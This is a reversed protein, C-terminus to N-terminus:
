EIRANRKLKHFEKRVLRVLLLMAIVDSIILMTFVNQWSSSSIMGALLPGVAAGISGTGDIIATVTALAKANGELSSHQGLEASVSTTILAYPGNVLIGAMFLFFINTM